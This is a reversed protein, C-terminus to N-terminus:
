QSLHFTALRQAIDSFARKLTEADKAMYVYSSDTACRRLTEEAKTSSLEFGVAFVAIGKAKMGECLLRAQGDPSGNSATKGSDRTAVGADDYALNYEGDTMLIAVKHVDSRGYAAARHAEPWVENWSPSLMYWAWQTGIQGATQGSAVLSNISNHLLVKDDTLPVIPAVPTCKGTKTYVPGAKDNGYPGADTLAENGKRDSVCETLDFKQFYGNNDEFRHTSARGGRVTQLYDKGPNVAEAFPVLAVRSTYTGEREWVVIDVLENAAAKLATLKNGAMSGTVDLMMSVELNRNATLGRALQAQADINATVTRMGVVSLFPTTVTAQVHMTITNKVEDIAFQGVSAALDTPKNADYFGLGRAKAAELDNEIQWVRAAALVAADATQQARERASYARGFDIAGGVLGVLVIVSLALTIAISGDQDDRFSRLSVRQGNIFSHVSQM